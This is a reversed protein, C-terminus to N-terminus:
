KDGDSPLHKPEQSIFSDPTSTPHFHAFPVAWHVKATVTLRGNVTM